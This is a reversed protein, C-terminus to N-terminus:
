KKGAKVVRLPPVIQEDPLTVVTRISETEPPARYGQLLPPKAEKIVAKDLAWGAQSKERLWTVNRLWAARRAENEPFLEFSRKELQERTM